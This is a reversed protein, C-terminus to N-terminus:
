RLASRSASWGEVVLCPGVIRITKEEAAVAATELARARNNWLAVSIAPLGEAADLTARNFNDLAGGKRSLIGHCSSPSNLVQHLTTASHM